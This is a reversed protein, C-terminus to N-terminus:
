ARRERDVGLYVWPNEWYAHKKYGSLWPQLLTNEVPYVGLQWPAYAAILEALKRYIANREAGDPLMRSKRYLANYEPLDFRAYNTQGINPGYLLQFFADAEAYANIWGIRWM